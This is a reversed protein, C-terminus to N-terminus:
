PLKELDSERALLVEYPNDATDHPAWIPDGSTFTGVRVKIRNPQDRIETYSDYDAGGVVVFGNPVDGNYQAISSPPFTYVLLNGAVTLEARNRYGGKSLSYM